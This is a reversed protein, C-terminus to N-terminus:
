CCPLKPLMAHAACHHTMTCVRPPPPLTQQQHHQQQARCEEHWNIVLHAVRLARAPAWPSDELSDTYIIALTPLHFVLLMQLCWPRADLHQSSRAHPLTPSADHVSMCCQCLHVTPVRVWHNLDFWPVFLWHKCKWPRNHDMRVVWHPPMFARLQEPTLADNPCLYAAQQSNAFM